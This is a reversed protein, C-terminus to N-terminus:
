CFYSELCIAVRPDKTEEAKADREALSKENAFKLIQLWTANRIFSMIFLEVRM